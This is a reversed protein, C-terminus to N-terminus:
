GANAVNVSTRGLLAQLQYLQGLQAMAGAQASLTAALVQPNGGAVIGAVGAGAASITANNATLQGTVATQATGISSQVASTQAVTAGEYSDVAGTATTVGVMATTVAPNGITAVLSTITNLDAVIADDPSVPVALIPASLDQIVTCSISYPVEFPQQFKAEFREIVVLYLRSSWSLLQQQGAIRLQDLAAARSEALPGRFRGSWTKEGDDRGMADIVRDGGVLKKVVLTQAGGFPIEQPIEFDQFVVPGLTLTVPM